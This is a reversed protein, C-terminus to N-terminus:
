DSGATRQAVAKEIEEARAKGAAIQPGLIETLQALNKVAASNDEQQRAALSIWAYAEVYNQEVGHGQAYLLGYENAAPLYGRESALRYYKAAKPQDPSVSGSGKRYIQGLNFTSQLDGQVSAATYYSIAKQIDPRVGDGNQYMLGLNAQSARYGQDAADTFLKVARPIDKATGHGQYYLSALLHQGAPNGTNAAASFERLATAYDGKNYATIGEDIDAYATMLVLHFALVLVIRM